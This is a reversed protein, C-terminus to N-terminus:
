QNNEMEYVLKADIMDALHLIWNEVHKPKQPGYEGHHSLIAYQLFDIEEDSLIREGKTNIENLYVTGRDIHGLQYKGSMKIGLSWDYEDIKMIDHLVAATMLRDMNVDTLSYPMHPDKSYSRAIDACSKAVKFTHFFLGHIKNGHHSKAAPASLFDRWVRNEPDFDGLARSVFSLYREDKINEKIFEVFDAVIENSFEYVPLVLPLCKEYDGPKIARFRANQIQKQGNYSGVRAFLQYLKGEELNDNQVAYEEESRFFNKFAHGTSKDQVSLNLYNKGHATEMTSKSTLIVILGSIESNDDQTLAEKLTTYEM